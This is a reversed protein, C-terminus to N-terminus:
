CDERGAGGTWWGENERKVDDATGETKRSGAPARFANAISGGDRDMPAAAMARESAEEELGEGVSVLAIPAAAADAATAAAAAINGAELRCSTRSAAADPEADVDVEEVEDDDDDGLVSGATADDRKCAAYEATAPAPLLLM